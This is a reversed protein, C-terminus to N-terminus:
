SPPPRGTLTLPHRGSHPFRYSPRRRVHGNSAASLEAAREAAAAQAEVSNSEFM